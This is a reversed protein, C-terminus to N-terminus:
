VNGVVEEAVASELLKSSCCSVRYGRSFCGLLVCGQEDGAMM